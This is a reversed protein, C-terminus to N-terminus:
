RSKRRELFLKRSCFNFVMTIITVFVKAILVPVNMLEVSVWMLSLTLLLGMISLLVFILLEQVRQESSFRSVFVYRMSALYNFFTAFIFALTCALLYYIHGYRFLLYVIAYDILTAIVGVGFFRVIQKLLYHDM